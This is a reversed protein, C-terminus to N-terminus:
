ERITTQKMITLIEAQLDPHNIRNHFEQAKASDLDFSSKDLENWTDIIYKELNDTYNQPKLIVVLCSVTNNDM